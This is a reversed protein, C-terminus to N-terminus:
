FSISASFLIAQVSLFPKGYVFHSGDLSIMDLFLFPKWEFSCNESFPFAQSGSTKKEYNGKISLLQTQSDVTPDCVQTLFLQM